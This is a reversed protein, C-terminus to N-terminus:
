NRKQVGGPGGLHRGDQIDRGLRLRFPSCRDKGLAESFAMGKRNKLFVSLKTYYSFFQEPRDIAALMVNTEIIYPYTFFCIDWLPQEPQTFSPAEFTRM